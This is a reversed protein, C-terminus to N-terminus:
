ARRPPPSEELVLRPRLTFTLGDYLTALDLNGSLDPLQILADLGAYTTQTWDADRTRSWHRVEPLDPDGLLIHRLSEITKYEEVKDFLDFTRTSPSLVELVLFPADAWTENPKFSGCDIGADPRRINGAPIRVGTDATFLHCRHGRLLGYLMGLANGTLRDHVRRAGTLAVPMGDVLEHRGEQHQCWDLFENATMRRIAPESM